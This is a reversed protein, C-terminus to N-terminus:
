CVVSRAHLGVFMKCVGWRAIALHLIKKHFFAFGFCL